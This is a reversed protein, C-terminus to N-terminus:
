RGEKGKKRNGEERDTTPLARMKRNKNVATSIFIYIYVYSSEM